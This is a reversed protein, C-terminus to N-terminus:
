GQLSRKRLSVAVQAAPADELAQSLAIHNKERSTAAAKAIARPYKPNVYDLSGTCQIWMQEKLWLAVERHGYEAALDLATKGEWLTAFLLDPEQGLFAKLLDLYGLSAARLWAFTNYPGQGWGETQLMNRVLRVHGHKCALDFPREGKNNKAQVDLGLQRYYSFAGEFGQAAAAHLPTNGESDRSNLSYEGSEYFERAVATQATKHFPLKTKFGRKILDRALAEGKPHALAVELLRNSPEIGYRDFLLHGNRVNKEELAKTFLVDGYGAKVFPKPNIWIYKGEFVPSYPSYNVEELKQAFVEIAAPSIEWKTLMAGVLAGVNTEAEFRCFQLMLEILETDTSSNVLIEQILTEELQFHDDYFACQRDLGIGIKLIHKLMEPNGKALSKLPPGPLRALLQTLPSLRQVTKVDGSEIRKRLFALAASVGKYSLYILATTTVLSTLTFLGVSLWPYLTVKAVLTAAAKSAFIGAQMQAIFSGGLIYRALYIPLTGLRGIAVTGGVVALSFIIARCNEAKM